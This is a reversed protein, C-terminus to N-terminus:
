ALTYVDLVDKPEEVKWENRSYESLGEHSFSPNTQQHCCVDQGEAGPQGRRGIGTHVRLGAWGDERFVRTRPRHEHGAAKREIAKYQRENGNAAAFLPGDPEGSHIQENEQRSADGGVWATQHHEIRVLTNAHGSRAGHAIRFTFRTAVDLPEHHLRM